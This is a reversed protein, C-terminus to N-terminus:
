ESSLLDQLFGGAVYMLIFAAIFILITIIMKRQKLRQHALTVKELAVGKTLKELDTIIEDMSQYRDEPRKEMARLMIMKLDNPVGLAQNIAPPSESIHKNATDVFTEGVFPPVGSLVAYMVCGFSYIDSRQDVRKGLAQEPSMYLPTGLVVGSKTLGQSKLVDDGETNLVKAIGFDVIRVGTRGDSDGRTLMINEPKLDRHVVMNHHALCLAQAIQLFTHVAGSHELPGDRRLKRELSIGDIWDMVLYPVGKVIGFDHVQCIAPHKLSSASKAEGVFRQRMEEDEACEKNLVKVAFHAGTYRNKVKYIAGMGGEGVKGILQYQEPLPPLQEDLSESIM